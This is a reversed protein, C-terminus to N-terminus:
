CTSQSIIREQPLKNAPINLIEYGGFTGGLEIGGFNKAM